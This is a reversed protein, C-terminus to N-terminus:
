KTDAKSLLLRSSIAQLGDGLRSKETATSSSIFVLGKISLSMTTQYKFNLGVRLKQSSSRDEKRSNYAGGRREIEVKNGTVAWGKGNSRDIFFDSRPRQYWGVFILNSIRFEGLRLELVPCIIRGPRM